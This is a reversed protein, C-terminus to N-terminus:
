DALIYIPAPLLMSACPRVGPGLATMAGIVLGAAVVLGGSAALGLGCLQPQWDARGAQM